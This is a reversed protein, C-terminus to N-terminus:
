KYNDITESILGIMMDRLPKPSIIECSFTYRMLRKMLKDFPENKNVIILNGVEDYGRSYENEKIKYTKALRNKLKYVVTMTLETPNAIQPQKVISLINPIVIDINERKTIDYVRLYVNRTDYIVEKPNCKIKIERKTKKYIIEIIFKEKCIQECYKVQEKFDSYYFSYDYRSEFSNLINKDNNDMRMSLTNLFDKVNQTTDSEPLNKVSSALINISKLDENTFPMSYLSSELKFKNQKKTVKMGFIKLTNLYKNLIVQANNLLYEDSIDEEFIKIVSNYDAKDAYLLEILRFIKLCGENLKVKGKKM